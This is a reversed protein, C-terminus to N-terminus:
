KKTKLFFAVVASTVIGAIPAFATAQIIYNRLSFYETAEEMKLKNNDVAYRIANAFYDPTIITSVIYQSLPTLITVFLSIILGSIFGQLFTMNSGLSKKKARLAFVYVAIAVVMFFMSFTSHQEIYKDHLGSLKELSVWVLQAAIFVFAYKIELSYKKM